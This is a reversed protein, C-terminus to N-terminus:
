TKIANQFRPTTECASSIRHRSMEQRCVKLSHIVFPATSSIRISRVSHTEISLYQQWPGYGREPKTPDQLKGQTVCYGAGDLTSLTVLQSGIVQLQVQLLSRHLNLVIEQRGVIPMIVVGATMFDPNSPRLAIAHTFRIGLDEYQRTVSEYPQLPSFCATQWLFSGYCNEPSTLLPNAISVSANQPLM